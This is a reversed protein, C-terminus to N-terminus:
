SHNAELTYYTSIYYTRILNWFYLSKQIKHLPISFAQFSCCQASINLIRAYRSIKISSRKLMLILRTASVKLIIFAGVTILVREFTESTYFPKLFVTKFILANTQYFFYFSYQFFFCTKSILATNRLIGSHNTEM